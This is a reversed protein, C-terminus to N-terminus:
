TGLIKAVTVFDESPKERPKGGSHSDRPLAVALVDVAVDDAAVVKIDKAHARGQPAYVISVVM